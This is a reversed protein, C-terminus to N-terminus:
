CLYHLERLHCGYFVLLGFVHTFGALGQYINREPVKLSLLTHLDELALKWQQKSFPSWGKFFLMQSSTFGIFIRILIISALSLGLPNINVITILQSILGKVM